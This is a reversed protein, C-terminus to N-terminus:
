SYYILPINKLFFRKSCSLIVVDDFKGEVTFDSLVFNRFGVGDTIVIGLKKVRKITKEVDPLVLNVQMQGSIHFSSDQDGRL